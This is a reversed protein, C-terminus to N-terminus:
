SSVNKSNFSGSIIKKFCAMEIQWDLLYEALSNLNGRYPYGVLTFVVNLKYMVIYLIYYYKLLSGNVEEQRSGDWRLGRLM